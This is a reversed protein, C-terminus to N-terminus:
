ENKAEAQAAKAGFGNFDLVHQELAKSVAVRFVLAEEFTIERGDGRKVCAAILRAQADRQAGPRKKENVDQLPGLLETMLSSSIDSIIYTATKERITVQVEKSEPAEFEDIVPAPKVKDNM